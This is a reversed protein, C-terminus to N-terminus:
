GPEPEELAAKVRLAMEEPTGTGFVRLDALELYPQFRATFIAAQRERTSNLYIPRSMQRDVVIRLSEEFDPSPMLVVSTGERKVLERNARVLDLEEDTELFGSSLVFLAPQRQEELLERLLASNQRFYAAYGRERIYLTINEVRRCFEEDLDVLPRGLLPAL